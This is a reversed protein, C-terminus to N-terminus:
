PILNSWHLDNDELLREAPQSTIILKAINFLLSSFATKHSEEISCLKMAESCHWQNTIYNCKTYNLNIKNWHPVRRVLKKILYDFLAVGQHILHENNNM